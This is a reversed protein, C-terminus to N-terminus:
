SRKYKSRHWIDFQRLINPYSEKFFTRIQIHQDRTIMYINVGKSSLYQLLYALGYKEM